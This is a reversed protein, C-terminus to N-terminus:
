VHVMITHNGGGVDLEGEDVSMPAGDMSVVAGAVRLERPLSFVGATGGPTEVKLTFVGSKGDGGSNAAVWSWVVGFWGLPTEYGGRAGSLGSIHPAVRWTQGKPATVTLGLVYFSLASTPGTSWGHAHSTYAPDHNYGVNSRYSRARPLDAVSDV